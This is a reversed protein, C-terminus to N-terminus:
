LSQLESTHEESRAVGGNRKLRLLRIRPDAAAAAAVIAATRDTSADDAVVMEWDGLSQAQVSAITAAIFGEANFAATIVSVLPATTMSCCGQARAPAPSGVPPRAKAASPSTSSSTRARIANPSSRSRSM